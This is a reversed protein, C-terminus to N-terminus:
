PKLGPPWASRGPFYEWEFAHPYPQGLRRRAGIPAELNWFCEGPHDRLAGRRLRLLADGRPSSVPGTKKGLQLHHRRRAAGHDSTSSRPTSDLSRAAVECVYGITRLHRDTVQAGQARDGAKGIPVTYYGRAGRGQPAHELCPPSKPHRRLANYSASPSSSCWRTTTRSRPSSCGKADYPSAPMVVKIGCVHTFIGEPSQSHTQGGRIGRRLAHPDHRAGLVRRRQPLAAARARQLDPRLRSLHLGRVAGRCPRLGNVGHRDRASSRARAIPTDLVRHEGYKRQLGDTVRFVGGFFGVDEGMVVVNPDRGLMIDMRFQAGPDHEDAARSLGGARHAAARAAQPPARCRRSCTEFMLSPQAASGRQALRLQVAEKWSENVHQRWSPRAGRPAGGVVRWGILHGKLRDVPRRAAM